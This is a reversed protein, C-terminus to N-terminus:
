GSGWELRDGFGGSGRKALSDALSNSVRPTFKFDVNALSIKFQRIDHILGVLIFNGFDDGNIWSVVSSSDNFITIKRHLIPLNSAVIQCARHIAFVEASILDMIGIYFSFLCLVKGNSDRLVGGIGAEAPNGRVSGDVFFSLDMDSPPKWGSCRTSKTRKFDDCRDKLDLILLTLDIDSGVDYHKFWLALRFKIM